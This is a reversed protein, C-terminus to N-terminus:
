SEDGRSRSRPQQTSWTGCVFSVQSRWWTSSTRWRRRRRCASTRWRVVTQSHPARSSRTSACCWRSGPPTCHACVRCANGCRPRARITRMGRWTRGSRSVRRSCSVRCSGNSSNVMGLITRHYPQSSRQVPGRLRAQRAPTPEQDSDHDDHLPPSLRLVQELAHRTHGFEEELPQLPDTSNSLHLPAPPVDFRELDELDKALLKRSTASATRTKLRIPRRTATSANILVAPTPTSATATGAQSRASTRSRATGNSSGRGPRSWSRRARPTPLFYRALAAREEPPQGEWVPRFKTHVREASTCAQEITPVTTRM